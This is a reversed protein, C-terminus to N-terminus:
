ADTRLGEVLQALARSSATRARGPDPDRAVVMAAQSTAGLLLHALPATPRDAMVGAAVAEQLGAEVLGVMHRADIELWEEYGLVAPGDILVVQRVDPELCADLFASFGRQLRRLPDQSRLAAAVLREALEAEIVEFVARFLDEKNRFHHYLAGRTVRARRVIQETGTAAFGQEAFLERAAALLAARTAESREAKSTKASSGPM